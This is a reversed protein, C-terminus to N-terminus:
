EPVPKRKNYPNYTDLKYEAALGPKLYLQVEPYLLLEAVNSNVKGHCVALTISGMQQRTCEIGYRM